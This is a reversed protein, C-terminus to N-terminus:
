AVHTSWDAECETVLRRAIEPVDAVSEVTADAILVPQDAAGRWGAVHITRMGVRAAGFVDCRADNGVFVTRDVRVGLRQAAVLFPEREPKGSGNGFESAYIVCDVLPAIGLALVKRAQLAPPGNTVVGLCWDGRLAELASRSAPPLVISPAHSRLVALLEPVITPPLGFHAACSQLEVGVTSGVSARTLVELVESRDVHWAHELHRAVAGFGSQVFQRLPYLTDDLDFMVAKPEHPM